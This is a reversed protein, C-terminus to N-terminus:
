AGVQKEFIPFSKQDTFASSRVYKQVNYRLTFSFKFLLNIERILFLSKEHFLSRSLIYFNCKHNIILLVVEFTNQSFIQESLM